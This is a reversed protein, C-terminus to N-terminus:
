FELAIGIGSPTSNREFLISIRPRLALPGPTKPPSLLRAARRKMAAGYASVGIGSCFAIGGVAAIVPPGLYLLLSIISMSLMSESVDDTKSYLYYTGIGAAAGVFGGAGLLIAGIKLFRNGKTLWFEAYPRGPYKTKFRVFHPLLKEKRLAKEASKLENLLAQADADTQCKRQMFENKKAADPCFCVTKEKNTTCVRREPCVLQACDACVASAAILSACLACIVALFCNSVTSQPPAPLNRQM